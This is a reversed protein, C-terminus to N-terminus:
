LERRPCVRPRSVGLFILTGRGLPWLTFDRLIVNLPDVSGKLRRRKAWRARIERSRLGVLGDVPDFCWPKEYFDREESDLLCM